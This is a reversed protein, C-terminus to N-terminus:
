LRCRPALVPQAGLVLRSGTTTDSTSSGSSRLSNIDVRYGGRRVASDSRLRSPLAYSRIEGGFASYGGGLHEHVRRDLPYRSPAMVPPTRVIPRNITVADRAARWATGSASGERSCSQDATACTGPGGGAHGTRHLTRHLSTLQLRPSPMGRCPRRGLRCLHATTVRKRRPVTDRPCLHATTVLPSGPVVHSPEAVAASRRM